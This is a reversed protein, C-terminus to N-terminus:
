QKVGQGIGKFLLYIIRGLGDRGIRPERQCLQEELVVNLAGLIVWSMEEASASRLEGSNIGEIALERIMEHLKQHYADFDFSPAGQPPGYYIAYMLRAVNIHQMFLIFVRDCLELLRARVSGSRQRLEGLLIDFQAFASRMLELYIGEKSGFYYYLVPKTVGAAAVIERVSASAYGKTTFLGLAEALLREKVVVEHEATQIYETM